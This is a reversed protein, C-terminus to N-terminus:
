ESGDDSSEDDSAGASVSIPVSYEQDCGLYSDSMCFLTLSYDGPEEPAIFELMVQQKRQLTVRKLSLLSNTKTNGVVIWWGEMKEKPFLPSAVKGLISEEQSDDEEEDVERELKVSIQVPDSATIDDPDQVDFTVEINPYNNCFVAVDAMKEDPLRLLDNRVDDDLSLIDFVTEIQEEGEYAQCRNVIENTFHPIQLLVNDKNWLGQVVMQSLEMAALAPKLWGNSSIVDVIAPILTISDCLVRKQDTRLDSSLAKRSFHCHLLVLAKTRPDQFQASEPLQEPLNRALIKLAKEEGQRIPLTGFESAHSLIELIGRVKTKATLSAAILEITEYQVYYYAAIMGLNLPSVDGDDTLQCCKSVELDGLVTEVM